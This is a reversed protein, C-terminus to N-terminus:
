RGTVAKRLPDGKPTRFTSRDRSAQIVHLMAQSPQSGPGYSAMYPRRTAVDDAFKKIADDDPSGDEKFLGARTEDDAADYADRRASSLIRGMAPSAAIIERRASNLMRRAEDREAEAQRLQTRYRAAERAARSAPAPEEKATADTTEPTETAEPEPEHDDNRALDAPTPPTNTAPANTPEEM